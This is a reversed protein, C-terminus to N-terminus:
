GGNAHGFGAVVADDDAGSGAAVHGGDAGSLEVHLGGDDLLVLEAPPAEVVGADRGLRDQAGGVDEGLDLVGSLEADLQVSGFRGDVELRGGLV